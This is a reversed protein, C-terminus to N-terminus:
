CDQCVNRVIGHVRLYRFEKCARELKGTGVRLQQDRIAGGVAMGRRCVRYKTCWVVAMFRIDRVCGWTGPLITPSYKAFVPTPPVMHHIHPGGVALGTEISTRSGAGVEEEGVRCFPM